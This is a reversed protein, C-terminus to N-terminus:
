KLKEFLIHAAKVETEERIKSIEAASLKREKKIENYIAGLIRQKEELLVKRAKLRAPILYSKKVEEAKRQAERMLANKVEEKKQAHMRELQQIKTEAEKKIKSAEAAAEAMIRKEIEQISM